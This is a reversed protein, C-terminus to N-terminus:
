TSLPLTPKLPRTENVVSRAENVVSRTENEVSRPLAEHVMAMLEEPQVPKHLIPFGSKKAERLREPATDGTIIIAPIERALTERIMAIADRGTLEADLRYDAIILDPQRPAGIFAGRIANAHATNFTQTSYGANELLTRFGLLVQDDDEIIVIHANGHRVSVPSLTQEDQTKSTSIPVEIWFLSGKDPSSQCGIRCGLLNSMRRVISLGLGLGQSRQRAENDIQYFDDFILDLKESAIGPGTDCVEFRLHRGHHRCGVLVRGNITYKIANDVLNRVITELLSPDCYVHTTSDVTHLELDKAWAIATLESQIRALVSGASFDKFTPQIVGAELKSIDLLTNLLEKLSDLSSRILTIIESKEPDSEKSDLAYVFLNLAQLPQRLDHSAAALFRTKAISAQEAEDRAAVLGTERLHLTDVLYQLSQAMEAIEDNGATNIKVHAGEAHALMSRRLDALRQLVTRSVYFFTAVAVLTSIIIFGVMAQITIDMSRSTAKNTASIAARIDRTALDSTSVFQESITRAARLNAQIQDFTDLDRKKVSFIGNQGFTIASLRDLTGQAGIRAASPLSALQGRVEFLKRTANKNLKALPATHELRTATMLMFIVSHISANWRDLPGPPAITGDPLNAGFQVAMVDEQLQMMEDDIESLRQAYTIRNETLANLRKYTEFLDAKLKLFKEKHNDSLAQSSIRNVTEELWAADDEVQEILNERTWTTPSIVLSAGRGAVSVSLQSIHATNELIPLETNILTDYNDQFRTLAVIFAIGVLIATIATFGLVWFLKTSIGAHGKSDFSRSHEPPRATSKGDM